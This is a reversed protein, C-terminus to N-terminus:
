RSLCPAGHCGPLPMENERGADVTLLMLNPERAKLQGPDVWSKQQEILRMAGSGM